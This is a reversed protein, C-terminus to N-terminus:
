KFLAKNKYIIKGDLITMVVRTEHIKMPDMSFLDQSLVILDAVQGSAITGKENEDGSSYAGAKTYAMMADSMSIKQEPVWGLPPKGDITRRNVATHLGRIPDLSVCAPWDSSFVLSAKNKLLAAWAFSNPLRETGIAKSWVAVTEPYAHIPEMSAIVGLQAFRPMDETSITEIHEIRHREMSTKNISHAYEYANLAERVARDGIAHTFIQFGLKDFTTVLERYRDLPLALEGSPLLEGQTADSYRNLMAGTHTEIVGDLMFKVSNARLFPHYGIRDKLKKYVDIDSMTTAANVSFAMSVRAKLEGKVFLEEYLSFEEANGSANQMTTIGLSSTLKMGLRLADLNEARTPEPIMRSVLSQAGEKLAGTPEGKSDRVVEGFGSFIYERNIGALELAKSNAWGSHGDYAKIFIPRDTIIADLTKKTPLGGAFMTYQWGSGTIWKRDPNKTAFESIHSVVEDLTKAGTLEVQSLGLSGSLFHIHSDNFGATVLRGNLDVVIAYRDALKRIDVTNGVQTITNGRIAVAEVFSSQDAGLWVRGNILILDAFDSSTNQAMGENCTVLLSALVISILHHKM